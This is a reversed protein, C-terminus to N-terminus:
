RRGTDPGRPGERRLEADKLAKRAFLRWSEHKRLRETPTLRLMREIQTVDVGGRHGLDAVNPPCTSPMADTLCLRGGDMAGAVRRVRGDSMRLEAFDVHDEWLPAGRTRVGRLVM